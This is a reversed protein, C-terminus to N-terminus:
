CRVFNKMFHVVHHNYGRSQIDLNCLSETCFSEILLCTAPQFPQSVKCLFAQARASSFFANSSIPRQLVIHCPSVSPSFNCVCACVCGLLLTFVRCFDLLIREYEPYARLVSNPFTYLFSM